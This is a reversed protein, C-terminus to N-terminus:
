QWWRSPNVSCLEISVTLIDMFRDLLAVALFLTEQQMNFESAVESLWSTVIMRMQPTANDSAPDHKDFCCSRPALEQEL